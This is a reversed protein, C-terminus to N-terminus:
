AAEMSPTRAPPAPETAEGGTGRAARPEAATGRRSVLAVPAQPASASGLTGAAPPVPTAPSQASLTPQSSPVPPSSPSAIVAMMAKVVAQPVKNQNLSVLGAATLDFGPTSSQITALILDRPLRSTVMYVIADNALVEKNSNGTAAKMMVKIMDTSVKSQYLNVLGNATIDFATSTSQIKALILDKPVKGVVMQVVSENTLVEVDASGQGTVRYPLFLAAFGLTIFAIWARAVTNKMAEESDFGCWMRLRCVGHSDARRHCAPRPLFM